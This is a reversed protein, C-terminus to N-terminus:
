GSVYRFQFDEGAIYTTLKGRSSTTLKIPKQLETRLIPSYGEGSGFDKKQVKISTSFKTEKKDNKYCLVVYDLDKSGKKKKTNQTPQLKFYLGM